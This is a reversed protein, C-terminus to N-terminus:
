NRVSIPTFKKVMHNFKSDVLFATGFGHNNALSSTYINYGNSTFAQSTLKNWRTEQIAAIAIKYKKLKNITIRLDGPRYLSRVIYTMCELHAITLGQKGATPRLRTSNDWKKKKKKQLLHKKWPRPVLGDSL